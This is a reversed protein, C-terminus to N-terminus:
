VGEHVDITKGKPLTVMAKKWHNRRGTYRGFRVNKGEVNIMRVDTPEVGYQARVANKVDIKTSEKKIEFTYVGHGENMTSKESVIARVLVSPAQTMGRSAKKEGVVAVTAEETKKTKKLIAM